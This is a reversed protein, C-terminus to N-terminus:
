SRKWRFTRRRPVCPTLTQDPTEGTVDVRHHEHGEFRDIGREAVRPNGRTCGLAVRCGVAVASFADPNGAWTSRFRLGPRHCQVAISGCIVDPIDVFKLVPLRLTGIGAPQSTPSLLRLHVRWWRPHSVGGSGSVGGCVVPQGAARAGPGGRGYGQVGALLFGSVRTQRVRRGFSAVIHRVPTLSV